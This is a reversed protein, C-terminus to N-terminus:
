RSCVLMQPQLLFPATFVTQFLRTALLQLYAPAALALTLPHLGCLWEKRLQQSPGRQM